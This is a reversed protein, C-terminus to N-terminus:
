GWNPRTPQNRVSKEPIDKGKKTFNNLVFHLWTKSHLHPITENDFLPWLIDRMERHGTKWNIRKKSVKGYSFISELENRYEENVHKPIFKDLIEKNVTSEAQQIPLHYAEAVDRFLTDLSTASPLTDSIFEVFTDITLYQRYVKKDYFDWGKSQALWKDFSSQSRIRQMNNSENNSKTLVGKNIAYDFLDNFSHFTNSDDDNEKFLETHIQSLEDDTIRGNVYETLITGLNRFTTREEFDCKCWGKEPTTGEYNLFETEIQKLITYNSRLTGKSVDVVPYGGSWKLILAYLLHKEAKTLQLKNLEAIVNEVDTMNELIFRWQKWLLNLYILPEVKRDKLFEITEKVLDQNPINSPNLYFDLNNDASINKFKSGM